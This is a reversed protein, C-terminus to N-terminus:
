RLLTRPQQRHRRMQKGLTLLVTGKNYKVKRYVRRTKEPIIAEAAMSLSQNISANIDKPTRVSETLRRVNERFDLVAVCNIITRMEDSARKEFDAAM